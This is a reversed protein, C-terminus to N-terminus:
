QVLLKVVASGGTAQLRLTYMGAPLGQLSVPLQHIGEVLASNRTDVVQGLANLISLGCATTSSPPVRPCTQTATPTPRPRPAPATPRWRAM